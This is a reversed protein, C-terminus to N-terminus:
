LDGINQSLDMRKGDMCPDDATGMWSAALVLSM